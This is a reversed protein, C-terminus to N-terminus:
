ELHLTPNEFDLFPNKGNELVPNKIKDNSGKQDSNKYTKKKKKDWTKLPQGIFLFIQTM